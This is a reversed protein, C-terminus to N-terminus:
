IRVHLAQKSNQNPAGSAMSNGAQAGGPVPYRPGVAGPISGGVQSIVNQQSGYPPVQYGMPQQQTQQQQQLQPNMGGANFSNWNPQQQQHHVQQPHQQQQQQTQMMINNPNPFMMQQGQGQNNPQMIQGGGIINSPGVM